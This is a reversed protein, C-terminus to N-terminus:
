TLSTDKNGFSWFDKDKKLVLNMQQLDKFDELNTIKVM